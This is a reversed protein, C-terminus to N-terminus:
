PPSGRRNAVRAWWHWPFATRILRLLRRRGGDMLSINERVVRSPLLALAILVPILFLRDILGPNGASLHTPARPTFIARLGYLTLKFSSDAPFPHTAPDAKLSILRQKCYYPQRWFLDSRIRRNMKRCHAELATQSAAIAVLNSRIAPLSPKSFLGTMNNNHMRYGGLIKESTRVRGYIPALSSMYLDTSAGVGPDSCPLVQLLFKRSYANGSTPPFPYCGFRLLLKEVEREHPMKQPLTFGLPSGNVDVAELCFQVKSTDVTFLAAAEEIATPHLFDDSDVIVIFDGRARLFGAYEASAAGKNAQAILVVRDGFSGIVALSDDTSGDDVVVVEVNPFTQSLASSITRGIFQAYNYSTIIISASNIVSSVAAM